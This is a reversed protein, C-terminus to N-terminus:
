VKVGKPHILYLLFTLLTRNKIVPYRILVILLGLEVSPCYFSKIIGVKHVRSTFITQAGFFFNSFDYSKFSDILDTIMFFFYVSTNETTHNVIIIYQPPPFEGYFLFNLLFNNISFRNIESSKLKFKSLIFHDM